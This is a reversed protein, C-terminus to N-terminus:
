AAKAIAQEQKARELGEIAWNRILACRGIGNEAALREIEAVVESPLRSSVSLSQKRGLNFKRKEM